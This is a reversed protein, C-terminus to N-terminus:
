WNESEIELEEQSKFMGAQYDKDSQKARAILQKQTFPKLEETNEQQEREETKEQTLGQKTAYEGIEEMVQLIQKPESVWLDILAALQVKKEDTLLEIKKATDNEVQLSITKMAMM